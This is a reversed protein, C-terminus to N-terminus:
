GPYRNLGKTLRSGLSKRDKWDKSMLRVHLNNFFRTIHVWNSIWTQKRVVANRVRCSAYCANDMSSSNSSILTAILIRLDFFSLWWLSILTAILIRLDFFSLWWLSWIFFYLRSLCRDVFCCVSVYLDLLVFAVLFQPSSPHEPRTLLEQEVLPVRSTVIM